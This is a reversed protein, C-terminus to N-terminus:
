IGGRMITSMFAYLATAIVVFFVILGAHIFVAVVNKVSCTSIIRARFVNRRHRKALLSQESKTVFKQMPSM